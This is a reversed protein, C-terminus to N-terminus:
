KVHNPFEGMGYGKRSIWKNITTIDDDTQTSLPKLKDRGPAFDSM